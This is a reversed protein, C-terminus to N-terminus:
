SALYHFTGTHSRLTPLLIVRTQLLRAPVLERVFQVPHEGVDADAGVEVRREGLLHALLADVQADVEGDEDQLDTASRARQQGGTLASTPPYM